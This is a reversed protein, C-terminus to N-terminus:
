EDFEATHIELFLLTRHVIIPYLIVNTPIDLIEKTSSYHHIKFLIHSTQHVYCFRFIGSVDM